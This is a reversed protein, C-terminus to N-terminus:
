QALLWHEAEPISSFARFNRGAIRQISSLIIEKLGEVGIVASARVFPTNRSTYDKFLQSSERNLEAETVDTLVLASGKPYGAIVKNAEAAVAALESVKCRTFDVFVYSKGESTIVQVRDM